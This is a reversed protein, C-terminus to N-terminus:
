EIGLEERDKSTLRYIDRDRIKEYIGRLSWSVLMATRDGSATVIRDGEPSFYASRLWDTHANLSRVLHGKMDWVKATKDHSSSIIYRMDPSFEVSAVRGAHGDINLLINGQLDWVKVTQDDSGSVIMDGNDSFNVWTVAQTHGTFSKQIEGTQFDWLNITKDHSGTAIHRNDRSVAIGNVEDKHAKISKLSNGESDFIEVVGGFDSTIIHKGDFSYRAKTPGCWGTSNCNADQKWEKIVKGSEVDWIRVTHDTGATIFREGVPSIDLSYIRKNNRYDSGFLKPYTKLLKIPDDASWLRVAMDNSATLIRKGDPLFRASVVEGGHNMIPPQQPRAEWLVATKDNSATVVYNGDASVAISKIEAKHGTYIALTNGKLDWLRASKDRSATAVYKGDSSFVAKTVADAHGKFVQKVSGDQNWLIATNDNSASLFSQPSDPDPSFVVSNVPASHDTLIKLLKGKLDYMKITKDASATLLVKADPSFAVDYIGCNWHDKETCNDETLSAIHNGRVDYLQASHDYDGGGTAFYRGDPSFAVTNVWGNLPTHDLLQKIQEGEYNWMIVRQDASVTVITRDDPAIAVKNVNCFNYEPRCGHGILDKINGEADWMKVLHGYGITIIKKGDHTFAVDQIEEGQEMEKLLVGNRDWLKATGDKSATVIKSGDPSYVATKVEDKHRLINKYFAAKGVSAHAYGDSLAQDVSSRVNAPDVEYAAQGVRLARTTDGANLLQSSIFALNDAKAQKYLEQARDRLRSMEFLGILLGSIIFALTGLKARTARRQKASRSLLDKELPLVSAANARAWGEAAKLDRSRLLLRDPKGEREWLAAQRQMPHLNKQFWDANSAGVPAVLRDHALEYWTAGARQESRVLHTDLLRAVSGNDLAGSEDQGRLVQGRIGGPTILRESIWARLRREHPADALAIDAVCSDYYAALAADVDGSAQLHEEGITQIDAPLQDWLRRCVVQLQVPEVYGGGVQRFSGDPQQVSTTALDDVLKRAAEDAFERGAAHAPKTIAELGAEVNLLDIRFTNSLRTPVDGRYPDLPALYDERLAFLAWVDPNRLTEGLQRFFERKADVDLPDLTLIEEFQDFVLVVSSPAGPRRPREAVYQALPQDAIAEFPRRHKAPLGEELSLVASKVFRNGNDPAPGARGLVLSLRISPWVDFRERQLRPVLGAHLLSSKGAGSPSHLAVIREASLLYFLQTIERDRGYLIEGARFPRPGPYPNTEARDAM